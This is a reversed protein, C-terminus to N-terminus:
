GHMDKQGKPHCQVILQGRLPPLPSLLLFSPMGVFFIYKCLLGSPMNAFLSIRYIWQLGYNTKFYLKYCTTMLVAKFANQFSLKYPDLGRNSQLVSAM